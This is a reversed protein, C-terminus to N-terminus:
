YANKLIKAKDSFKMILWGLLLTVAATVAFCLASWPIEYQGFKPMVVYVRLLEAITAHICYILTSMIRMTKAHAVHIDMKLIIWFLLPGAFLCFFYVDNNMTFLGRDCLWKDEFFLLVLSCVFAAAINRIDVMHMCEEYRVFLRGIWIWIISVFFTVAYSIETANYIKPLFVTKDALIRWTNQGLCLFYFLLAIVPVIYRGIGRDLKAVFIIGIALAMLYWSAPFSSGLLITGFFFAIGKHLYDRYIITFPLFVIFWFLYLTLSRKVSKWLYVNKEGDPLRDYKSFFLFSSIMFFVPIAIRCWPHIVHFRSNGFPKTHSILVVFSVIFKFLDFSDYNGSRATTNAEKM